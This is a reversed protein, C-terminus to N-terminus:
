GVVRWKSSRGNRRAKQEEALAELDMKLLDKTIPQKLWACTEMSKLLQVAQLGDPHVRLVHLVCLRRFAAQEHKEFVAVPGWAHDGVLVVAPVDPRLLWGDDARAIKGQSALRTGINQVSGGNLEVGHARALEVIEKMGLPKAAAKLIGVVLTAATLKDSPVWIWDDPMEAPRPSPMTPAPILLRPADAQEDDVSSVVRKLHEPQAEGAADFLAACTQGLELWLAYQTYAKTLNNLRDSAV